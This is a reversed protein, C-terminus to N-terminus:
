ASEAVKQEILDVIDPEAITSLDGLQDGKDIVIKCMIQSLPTLM